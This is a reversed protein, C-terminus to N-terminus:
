GLALTRSVRREADESQAASDPRAPRRGAILASAVAVLRAAPVPKELFADEIVLVRATM